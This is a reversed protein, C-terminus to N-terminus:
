KKVIDRARKLTANGRMMFNFDWWKKRTDTEIDDLYKLLQISARVDDQFDVGSTRWKRKATGHVKNDNPSLFQHVDAPDCEHHKFGLNSLVSMGEEFFSSGNNSFIVHDKYKEVGYHEFFRRVLEETERVYKRKQHTKAGVYMVIEKSVGFESLCENFYAELGDRRKSPPRDVRFDPNFTFLLVPTRNVGDSWEVTM